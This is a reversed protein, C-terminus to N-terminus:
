VTFPKRMELEQSMSPVLAGEGCAIVSHGEALINKSANLDANLECKCKICQFTSQSKRNEKSTYGCKNCKQSTYKPNVYVVRGGHWFMKYEILKQFIHWGQNLISRNLGSKAKVNKGPKEMTGKASKTMNIIQLEEMVILSHSNALQTSVKHLYDKRKNAIYNYIKQIKKLLKRWNSSFKKKQALKRQLRLLKKKIKEPHRKISDVIVTIVTFFVTSPYCM